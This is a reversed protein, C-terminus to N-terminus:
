PGGLHPAIRARVREAMVARNEFTWDKDHLDYGLHHLGLVRMGLDLLPSGSSGTLTDCKHGFDSFVGAQKGVAQLTTVGCGQLAVRKPDGDPHQVMALPQHLRHPAAAFALFGWRETSGPSGELRLLSFDLEASVDVLKRCRYDEGVTEKGAADREYGFKAYTSACVSASPVCHQNTLMLDPSVMFGTCSVTDFDITMILKAVSRAARMLPANGAFEWLPRDKPNLPDVQSLQGPEKAFTGIRDIRFSLGQASGAPVVVQVLAYSGPLMLTWYEPASALAKLPFEDIVFNMRNRVVVKAGEMNTPPTFSSFRLRFGQEGLRDFVEKEVVVGPSSLPADAQRFLIDAAEVRGERAPQTQAPGSGLVMLASALIWRRCSM